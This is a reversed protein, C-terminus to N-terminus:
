DRWFTAVHQGGEPETGLAIAEYFTRGKHFQLALEWLHGAECVFGVRLSSGRGTPHSLFERPSENGRIEIVHGGRNVAVHTLHCYDFDGGCSPCPITREWSHLEDAYRSLFNVREPLATSDTTNQSTRPQVENRWPM